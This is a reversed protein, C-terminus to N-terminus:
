KQPEFILDKKFWPGFQWEKRALWRSTQPIWRAVVRQDIIVWDDSLKQLHHSVAQGDPDIMVQEDAELISFEPGYINVGLSRWFNAMNVSRLLGVGQGYWFSNQDIYFRGNALEQIDIPPIEGAEVPLQIGRKQLHGRFTEPHDDDWRIGINFAYASALLASGRGRDREESENEIGEVSALKVISKASVDDNPRLGIAPSILVLGVGIPLLWTISRVLSFVLALIGAIVLISSSKEWFLAGMIIQSSWRHNAFNAFFTSDTFVSVEGLGYRRSGLIPFNGAVDDDTPDLEGFFSNATYDPHESWGKMTLRPIVGKSISCPTLGALGTFFNSYIGGNTETEYLADPRLGIGFEETLAKLVTQHGFLNTHDAVILLRGGRSTWQKVSQVFASDFPTTPTVIVLEDFGDLTEGPKIVTANLSDRFREYTYQHKTSLATPGEPLHTATAWVGGDLFAVKPSKPATLSASIPMLSAILLLPAVQVIRRILRSCGVRPRFQILASTALGVFGFIATNRTFFWPCNPLVSVCAISAFFFNRVRDPTGKLSIAAAAACLTSVWPDALNSFQIVIVALLAATLTEAAKELKNQRMM